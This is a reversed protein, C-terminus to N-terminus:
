VSCVLVAKLIEELRQPTVNGPVRLKPGSPLVIELSTAGEPAGVVRRLRGRSEVPKTRGRKRRWQHVSSVAMEERRCFEAVSLGSGELRDLIEGVEAETRKVRGKRNM